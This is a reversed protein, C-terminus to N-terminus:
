DVLVTHIQALTVLLLVLSTGPAELFCIEITLLHLIDVLLISPLLHSGKM